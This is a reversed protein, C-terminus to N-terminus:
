RKGAWLKIGTNRYLGAQTFGYKEHLAMGAENPLVITYVASAPLGGYLAESIGQGLVDRQAYVSVGGTQPKAISISEIRGGFACAPPM